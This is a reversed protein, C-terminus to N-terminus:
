AIAELHCCFIWTLLICSLWVRLEFFTKLIFHCDVGINTFWTDSLLTIDQLYLSSRCSLLLFIINLISCLIQISIGKFIFLHDPRESVHKVDDTLLGFLLPHPYDTDFWTNAWCASPRPNSGWCWLFLVFAWLLPKCECHCFPWAPVHNSLSIFPSSNKHQQHSHSINHQM